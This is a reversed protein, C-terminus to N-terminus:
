SCKKISIIYIAVLSLGQFSNIACLSHYVSTNFEISFISYLKFINNDDVLIQAATLLLLFVLIVSVSFILRTHSYKFVLKNKIIVYLIYSVIGFNICLVICKTIFLTTTLLGVLHSRNLFWLIYIIQCFLAPLLWVLLSILFFNGKEHVHLGFTKTHLIKTYFSLWCISVTETFIYLTYLGVLYQVEFNSDYVHQKLKYEVCSQIYKAVTLNVIVKQDVKRIKPRWIFLTAQILLCVASFCTGAVWASDNTNFSMRSIYQKSQPSM